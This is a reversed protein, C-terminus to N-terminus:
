VDMTGSRNKESSWPNKLRDLVKKNTFDCDKNPYLYDVWPDPRIRDQSTWVIDFQGDERAKGIRAWLWTHHNKEDIKVPGQPAKFEQGPLGEYILADTDTGKVKEIAQALLYTQFYAAEMVANTVQNAGYKAKYREVFAKNEPTDVTQFYNFSTYHGAANEPGMAATEQETTIPTCIPLDDPTLGFQKFQKYFAVISDGVLDSFVIEAGSNAINNIITAFETHGLPAYEEGVNEGGHKELLAKVERNTEKPYIYNSGIMYFKKRGLNKIIWPVFDDLQQNPVAGTYFCNKSCEQAEYLTPYLLLGNYEEFVPLVSQRSASTYCGLVAAVKDELLLKKSKEAFVQVLSQPDEVVPVLKKGLVGGKANIEEIALLEANHLSTEIIAITGSLPHLIGIKITDSEQAKAINRQFYYPATAGFALAGFAASGRLFTRRKIKKM